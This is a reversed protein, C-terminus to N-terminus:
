IEIFNNTSTNNNIYTNLNNMLSHLNDIFIKSHSTPIFHFIDYELLPYHTKIVEDLKEFNNDFKSIIFTIKNNNLYNRFNNIRRNYREIFFKFDNDIYHNIGGTWNQSIYLNGHGPSEHNFIFNYRTNVILKENFGSNNMDLEIVKLFNTDCFYKFNEQLCLIIGDYNTICEDFPCTKYGDIKKKRIGTHVGRGAPECNWGLSIGEKEM